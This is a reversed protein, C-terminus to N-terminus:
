LMDSGIDRQNVQNGLSLKNLDKQRKCVWKNIRGNLVGSTKEAACGVCSKKYECSQCENPSVYQKMLERIEFWASELGNALVSKTVGHFGICPQMEGKWNIHFHAAGAACPIGVFQEQGKIRFDYRKIPVLSREEAIRTQYEEELRCIGVYAENDIIYEEIQRGTEPRAPLTTMGIRYDVNLSHLLDLMAPADEKMFRNPMVTMSVRIDAEKLRNVAHLVDEFADIGTVNIYGESNSGYLSIQVVAPRYRTFLEIHKDSLLQGNTLVSVHVGRNILYSFIETFGPHTLCEGGTLDVNMVGADVAQRAIDLWEDTSLLHGERQMQERTLHMYCMKCAFNCLPTLEFSASYPKGHLRSKRLLFNGMARTRAIGSIGERDLDELLESLTEFEKM